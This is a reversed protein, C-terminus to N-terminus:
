LRKKKSEENKIENPQVFGKANPKSELANCLIPNDSGDRLVMFQMLHVGVNLAAVEQTGTEGGFLMKYIGVGTQEGIKKGKILNKNDDTVNWSYFGQQNNENAPPQEDVINRAAPVMKSISAANAFNALADITEPVKTDVNSTFGTLNWGDALTPNFEVTGIRYHPIITRTNTGDPLLLTETTCVGNENSMVKLYLAPKPVTLGDVEKGNERFELGSCASLSLLIAPVAVFRIKKYM